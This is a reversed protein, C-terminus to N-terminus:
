IDYYDWEEFPHHKLFHELAAESTAQVKEEFNGSVTGYQPHSAVFDNVWEYWDSNVQGTITWGSNNNGIYKPSLTRAMSSFYTNYKQIFM